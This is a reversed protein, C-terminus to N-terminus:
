PRMPKSSLIMTENKEDCVHVGASASYITENGHWEPFLAEQTFHSGDFSQLSCFTCRLFIVSYMFLFPTALYVIFKVGLGVIKM